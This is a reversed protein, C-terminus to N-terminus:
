ILSLGFRICHFRTKWTKKRGERIIWNEKTNYPGTVSGGSSKGERVGRMGGLVCILGFQIQETLSVKKM